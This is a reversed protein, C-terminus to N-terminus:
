AAQAGPRHHSAAAATIIFVDGIQVGDHGCDDAAPRRRAEGTPDVLLHVPAAPPPAARAQRHRPHALPPPRPPMPARAWRRATGDRAAPGADVAAYKTRSFVFFDLSEEDDSLRASRRRLMSRPIPAPYSQKDDYSMVAPRRSNGVCAHGVHVPQCVDSRHRQGAPQQLGAPPRTEPETAPAAKGATRDGAAGGPRPPPARGADVSNPGGQQPRRPPAVAESGWWETGRGGM